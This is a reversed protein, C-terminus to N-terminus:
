DLYAECVYFGRRHVHARMERPCDCAEPDDCEVDYASPCGCPKAFCIHDADPQLTLNRLIIM